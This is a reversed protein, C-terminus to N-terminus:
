LSSLTANGTEFSVVIFISAILQKRENLKSMKKRDDHPSVPGREPIVTVDISIGVTRSSGHIIWINM